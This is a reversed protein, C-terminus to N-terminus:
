QCIIIMGKKVKKRATGMKPPRKIILDNDTRMFLPTSDDPKPTALSSLLPDRNNGIVTLAFFLYLKSIFPVHFAFYSYRFLILIYEQVTRTQPTNSNKIVFTCENINESHFISTLIRM